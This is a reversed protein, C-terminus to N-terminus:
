RWRTRTAGCRGCRRLGAAGERDRDRVREPRRRDRRLRLPDHRDPEVLVVEHQRQADDRDPDAVEDTRVVRVLSRPGLCARAPGGGSTTPLLSMSRSFTAASFGSRILPIQEKM